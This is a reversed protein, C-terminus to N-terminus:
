ASSLSRAAEAGEPCSRTYPCRQCRVPLPNPPFTRDRRLREVMDLILQISQRQLEVTVDIEFPRPSDGSLLEYVVRVEVDPWQARVLLGYIGPAPDDAITDPATRGTKYDRVELVGDTGRWLADVRGRVLILKRKIFWRLDLEGALYTAGDISPCLARHNSVAREVMTVVSPDMVADDRVIGVADHDAGDLHRAHLEAHAERGILTTDDADFGDIMGAGNSRLALVHTYYARRPCAADEKLRWPSISILGPATAFHAGLVEDPVEPAAGSRRMSM